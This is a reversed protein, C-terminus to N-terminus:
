LELTYNKPMVELDLLRTYTVTKRASDKKNLNQTDMSSLMLYKTISSESTTETCYKSVQKKCNQYSVIILNGIMMILYALAYVCAIANRLMILRLKAQLHSSTKSVVALGMKRWNRKRLIRNNFAVIVAILVTRRMNELQILHRILRYVLMITTIPLPDM